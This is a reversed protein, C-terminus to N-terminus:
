LKSANRITIQLEYFENSDFIVNQISHLNKNQKNTRIKTKALTFIRTM